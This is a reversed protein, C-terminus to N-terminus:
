AEFFITVVGSFRFHDVMSTVSRVMREFSAFFFLLGSRFLANIAFDIEFAAM